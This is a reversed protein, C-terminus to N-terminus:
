KDVRTMAWGIIVESARVRRVDGSGRRFAGLRPTTGIEVRATSLALGAGCWIGLSYM